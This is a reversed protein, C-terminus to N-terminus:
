KTLKELNEIRERVESKPSDRLSIERVQPLGRKQRITHDFTFHQNLLFFTFRPKHPKRLKKVFASLTTWLYMGERKVTGKIVLIYWAVKHQM